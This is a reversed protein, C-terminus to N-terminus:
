QPRAASPRVDAFKRSQTRFAVPHLSKAAAGAPSPRSRDQQGAETWRIADAIDAVYRWGSTINCRLLYLYFPRMLIKVFGKGPNQRKRGQRPTQRMKRAHSLGMVRALKFAQEGQGAPQALKRRRCEELMLPRKIQQGGFRQFLMALAQGAIGLVRCRRDPLQFQVPRHIERHSGQRLEAAQRLRLVSRSLYPAQRWQRARPSWGVIQGYCNLHLM